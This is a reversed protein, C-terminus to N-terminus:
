GYPSTRGSDFQGPHHGVIAIDDLDNSKKACQCNHLLSCCLKCCMNDRYPLESAILLYEIEDAYRANTWGRTFLGAEVLYQREVVIRLKFLGKLVEAEKELCKEKLMDTLATLAVEDDQLAAALVALADSM